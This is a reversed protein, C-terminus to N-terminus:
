TSIIKWFEEFIKKGKEDIKTAKETINVLFLGEIMAHIQLSLIDCDIDKRIEGNKQAEKLFIAIMETYEKHILDMEQATDPMHKIAELMLIHYNYEAIDNSGALSNLFDIIEQSSTFFYKLIQRVNSYKAVKAELYNGLKMYLMTMVNRFLDEKNKFHHYMGGKSTQASLAIDNMSAPEYGKTLFVRLSAELIRDKLTM